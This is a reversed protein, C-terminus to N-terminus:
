ANINCIDYEVMQNVFGRGRHGVISGTGLYNLGLFVADYLSVDSMTLLSLMNPLSWM